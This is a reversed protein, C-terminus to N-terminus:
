RVERRGWPTGQWNSIRGRDGCERCEWLITGSEVELAGIIAGPCRWRGPRRRCPVALVVAGSGSQEAIASVIAGIHKVIGLSAARPHVEGDEALYHTADTIWTDPM